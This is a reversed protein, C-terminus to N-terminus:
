PESCDRRYTEFIFFAEWSGVKYCTALQCTVPLIYFVFTLADQYLYLSRHITCLRDVRTLIDHGFDLVLANSKKPCSPNFLDASDM